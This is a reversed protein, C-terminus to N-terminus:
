LSGYLEADFDDLDKNTNSFDLQRLRPSNPESTPELNSKCFVVKRSNITKALAKKVAEHDINTRNLIDLVYNQRNNHSKM